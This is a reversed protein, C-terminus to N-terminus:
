LIAWKSIQHVSLFAIMDCYSNLFDIANAHNHCPVIIVGVVDSGSSGLVTEVLPEVVDDNACDRLLRFVFLSLSIIFFAGCNVSLM